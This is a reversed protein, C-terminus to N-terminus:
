GERDDRVEKRARGTPLCITFTTGRGPCTEFTISGGMAEVMSKSVALGLGLGGPEPGRKTTFFPEFVNPADEDSIGHGEDKVKVVMEGDGVSASLTITSHPVSADIANRLLNLIVQTLFGAPLEATIPKDPAKLEVSIERERLSSESIALVERLCDVVQAKHPVQREDRYLEFMRRVILAIRDIEREILAVYEYRPHDKPVARKVLLFSNKIGALPNNIEHAIRAALRGTAAHAESASRQRELQRIRGTRERLTKELEENYTRLKSEAARLETEVEKLRTIDLASCLVSSLTAASGPAVVWRLSLFRQQGGATRTVSERAFSPAGESVAVLTEVFADSAQDRAHQRVLHELAEFTNCRFLELTAANADTVTMMNSCTVVEEPHDRFYARFDHVGKSRLVEVYVKVKSLDVEWNAAPSNEFRSRYLEERLGLAKQTKKLDTIDVIVGLLGAVKGDPAAFTAKSFLVDRVEGSGTRVRSEYIQAGPHRLLEGDREFYQDALDQPAVEYVSKGVVETKPRGLFQEFARNCGTYRQDTDKYFIPNPITDILTQLFELQHQRDEEVRKRETIDVGYVRIREIDAVYSITQHYIQRGLAVERTQPKSPDKRAEQVVAHWDALWPHEPARRQLDPMLGSSAPNIYHIRGDLDAEIIPNPNREPFSALRALTLELRNRETVDQGIALLGVVEGEANKLVKDYWEILIERGNRTLLADVNARTPTGGIARKFLARVSARAREPLFTDFWDEGRVEDLSYGSIKEMYPNLSVIKGRPDLVLIIAQATEVLGTALDRENRLAEEAQRRDTIDALFGSICAIKGNEDLLLNAKNVVWKVQDARTVIRYEIDLPTKTRRHEVIKAWARERDDPHIMSKFLTPTETLEEGSYGTLEAIKSSVFVPVRHQDPAVSYVVVPINESILRFRAESEQLAREGKKRATIDRVTGQIGAIQGNKRLLIPSVDIMQPAGRKQPIELELNKFSGGALIAGFLSAAMEVDSPRLFSSFGQGIIEDSRFGLLGEISPSVYTIRGELNVQFIVDVGTEVIARFKEESESLAEEARTRATIDHIVRFRSPSGDPDGISAAVIEYTRHNKPCRWERRDITGRGAAAGLCGECPAHGMSLYEYCKKEKWPGFTEELVENVYLLDYTDSLALVGDGSAALLSLLNDREAIIAAQAQKLDTLPTEKTHRITTELDSIKERAAALEEMLQKKTKQMDRM